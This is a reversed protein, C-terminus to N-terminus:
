IMFQRVCTVASWAPLRGGARLRPSEMTRESYDLPKGERGAALILTGAAILEHSADTAPSAYWSGAILGATEAILDHSYVPFFIRSRTPVDTSVSEGISSESGSTPV